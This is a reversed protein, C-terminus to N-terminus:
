LSEEDFLDFSFYLPRSAVHLYLVYLFKKWGLSLIPADANRRGEATYNIRNLIPSM